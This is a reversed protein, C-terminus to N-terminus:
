SWCISPRLSPPPANGCSVHSPFTPHSPNKKKLCFNWGSMVLSICLLMWVHQVMTSQFCSRLMIILSVNATNTLTNWIKYEPCYLFFLICLINHLLSQTDTSLCLCKLLGKAQAEPRKMNNVFYHNSDTHSYVCVTASTCITTAGEIYMSLSCMYFLRTYVFVFRFPQLKDKCNKFHGSSISLRM